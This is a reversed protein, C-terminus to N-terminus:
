LKVSAVRAPIISPFFQAILLAVVAGTAGMIILHLAGTGTRPSDV